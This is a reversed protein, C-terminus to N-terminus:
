IDEEQQTYTYIYIYKVFNLNQKGITEVHHIKHIKLSARSHWIILRTKCPPKFNAYSGCPFPFPFSLFPFLFLVFLFPFSFPFSLFPFPFSFPFPFPFPFSLSLFPYHFPFSLSFPCPFLFSISFVGVRPSTVQLITYFLPPEPLLVALADGFRLCRHPNSMSSPSKGGEGDCFSISWRARTQRLCHFTLTAPVKYESRTNLSSTLPLKPSAGPIYITIFWMPETKEIPSISGLSISVWSASAFRGCPSDYSSNMSGILYKVM